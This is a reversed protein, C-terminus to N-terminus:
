RPPPPPTPSVDGPRGFIVWRENLSCGPAKLCDTSKTSDVLDVEYGVTGFLGSSNGVRRLSLYDGSRTCRGSVAGASADSCAGSPTVNAPNATFTVNSGTTIYLLFDQPFGAAHNMYNNGGGGWLLSIAVESTKGNAALAPYAFAYDSNWTEFEGVNSFNQDDVFLMRVYPQKFNSDRGATWAFWIQNAPQPAGPAVLGVFPKVVAGLVSDSKIRPALWYQGDPAKSTYDSTSYTTTGVDRWSYQNSTDGWSWVTLKDTGNHGAWYMTGGANQTLHSGMANTSKTPDTFDWSVTNGPPLLVDAFSIRTVVLGAKTVDDSALYLHGNATSLDPFDLWDNGLGLFGSTVDFWTWATYFNAAIDGPKAWAVRQRNGGTVNGKADTPQNTQISWVIRDISPIYQVVQDCCYGGDPTDGFVTSFNSITKFTKGGDTSYKLYVNGTTLVVNSTGGSDAGSPDPPFNNATGPNETNIVFAVAGGQAVGPYSTIGPDKIGAYQPTKPFIQRPRSEPTPPQNENQERQPPQPQAPYPGETRHTPGHNTKVTVSGPGQPPIEVSSKFRFRRERDAGGGDADRRGRYRGEVEMEYTKAPDLGAVKFRLQLVQRGEAVITGLDLPLSVPLDRQGGRLKLERVVVERADTEGINEIPLAVLLETGNEVAVGPRGGRLLKGERRCSIMLMAALVMGVAMWDRNWRVSVSKKGNM